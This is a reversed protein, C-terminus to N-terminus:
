AVAAPSDAPVLDLPSSGVQGLSNPRTPFSRCEEGQVFTAGCEKRVASDAHIRTCSTRWCEWLVVCVCLCEWVMICWEWMTRQVFAHEEAEVPRLVASWVVCRTRQM